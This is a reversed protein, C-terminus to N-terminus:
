SLDKRHPVLRRRGAGHGKIHRRRLDDVYRSLDTLLRKFRDLKKPEVRDRVRSRKLPGFDDKLVVADQSAAEVALLPFRQAM